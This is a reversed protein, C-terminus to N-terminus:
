SSRRTSTARAWKPSSAGYGISRAGTAWFRLEFMLAAFAAFALLAIAGGRAGHSLAALGLVVLIGCVAVELARALRM